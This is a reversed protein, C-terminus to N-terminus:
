PTSQAAAPVGRPLPPLIITGAPGPPGFFQFKLLGLDAANVQGDGDLDADLDGGTFMVAGMLGLDVANIVGDNNLDADCVNGYGDGNSDRQDPNAHLSCNDDGDPVGDSDNDAPLEVTITLRPRLSAAAAEGSYAALGDTAGANRLVLGNNPTAGDIWSQLLAVGDGTFPVETVGAIPALVEAILAVGADQTGSAGPVEWDQGSAYSQWTAEFQLWDRRSEYLGYRDASPNFVDLWLRASQVPTGAPITELNWALLSVLDLGAGSDGDARLEAAAGANVAPHAEDLTVARMGAYSVDPSVGNQLEIDATRVWRLGGSVQTVFVNGALDTLGQVALSYDVGELLPVTTLTVQRQGPSLAAAVVSGANLTYNHVDEAAAQALPESFSLTLTAGDLIEIGYLLPPTEDPGKLLTFRDAIAGDSAVFSADLREGNVDLVLSGLTNLSVLMASHDLTGGGIKGASGAVAYVAGAHAAGPGGIKVYAGDSDDRGDGGDVLNAASFTLSDGYHGDILFSREYSHSHGTLVLDVGHAELIPLAYERMQTLTSETDSDHSGKTYPPHHWYAIIWRATTAALDDALWTLMAGQPTRDLSFSELCVFHIDGYDFSYYAETGTPLGGAEAAVPLSFNDYYPGSQLTSDASLGEHNGLTPWVPTQRLIQPYMDFLAAQYQSQTGETYANDGLLLLLDADRSGAFELYADRVTAADGNATGSDGLVWIRTSGSLGAPPSTRFRHFANDGAHLAATSGVSYYYLTAPALNTLLVEHETTAAADGASQHLDGPASGYRVISDTAVDTRWRVIISAPTGQQLYPGRTLTEAHAVGVGILLSAIHAALAAACGQWATRLTFPPVHTCHNTM